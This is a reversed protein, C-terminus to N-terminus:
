RPGGTTPVDAMLARRAAERPTVEVQVYDFLHPLVMDPHHIADLFGQWDAIVRDLTHAVLRYRLRAWPSAQWEAWAAAHADFADAGAARFPGGAGASVPAAVWARDASRSM